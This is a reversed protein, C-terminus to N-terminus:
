EALINFKFFNDELAPKVNNFGASVAPKYKDASSRWYSGSTTKLQYGLV